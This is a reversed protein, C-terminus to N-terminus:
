SDALPFQLLLTVYNPLLSTHQHLRTLNLFFTLCSIFCSVSVSEGSGESCFVCLQAGTELLM